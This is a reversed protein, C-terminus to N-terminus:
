KLMLENYKELLTKYEKSEIVNIKNDNIEKRLKGNEVRLRTNEEILANVRRTKDKLEIKKRNNEENLIKVAKKKEELEDYFKRFFRKFLSVKDFKM